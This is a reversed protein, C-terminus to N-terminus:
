AMAARPAWDCCDVCMVQWVFMHIFAEYAAFLGQGIDLNCSVFMNFAM